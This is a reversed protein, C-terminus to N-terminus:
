FQKYIIFERGEKNVEFLKEKSGIVAVSVDNVAPMLYKKAAGLMEDAKLSLIKNRLKQRTAHKLGLLYRYFAQEGKEAPTLPKSMDAITMLQASKLDEQSIGKKILLKIAEKFAKITQRIHPDRYSGFQVLGSYYDYVAFGGYAGGQERVLNHIYNRSLLKTVAMLAASDRHYINISKASAGVFSAATSVQYAEFYKKNKLEVSLDSNGIKLELSGAIKRLSDAFKSVKEKECVLSLQAKNKQFIKKGLTELDNALAKKNAKKIISKLFKIQELGHWDEQVKKSLNIGRGSASMAYYHGQEVVSASMKAEVEKLYQFIREEDSFDAESILEEILKILKPWEKNVSKGKVILYAKLKDGKANEAWPFVKIGGTYTNIARIFDAYTKNKTGIQPLVYALLPLYMLEKDKLGSLSFALGAYAFGKTAESFVFINKNIIKVQKEKIKKPISKLPLEPLCSLDEKKQQLLNLQRSDEKIKEKAKKSLEQEAKLLAKAETKMQDALLKNDPHLDLNLRHKNKIINDIIKAEIFGKQKVKKKLYEFHEAMGIYSIVKDGHRWPTILDLWLKIGYPYPQNRVERYKFELKNLAAKIDKPSFGTKVIKLLEKDILTKVPKGTDKKLGKLGCAFIINKYEATLGAGDALDTGLGSELMAKKLPSSAEGILLNSILEMTLSERIKTAPNLLWASLFQSENNKKGTSPYYKIVKKPKDWRKENNVKSRIKKKLFKSYANDDLYKLVRTLKIPGFSYVLSNSPHYYDAHFKKFNEFSLEPIKDPRGGSNFRYLSNPFLGEKLYEQMLREPSSLSGKMENYVVGAYSLKNNQYEYRWGEQRFNLENLKPFYVADLYVSLLNMLDKDYQSSFIYATWDEATFANMFTQLSNKLMSFFPDRVPYKESGTLVTHELIHAVGSHDSPCTKLTIAIAKDNFDNDVHLYEAGTKVHLFRFVVWKEKKFAQREMLRWGHITQNLKINKDM